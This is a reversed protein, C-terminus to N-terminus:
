AISLHQESPPEELIRALAEVVKEKEKYARESILSLLLNTLSLYPEIAKSVVYDIFEHRLVKNADPITTSHIYITKGVVSGDKDSHAKPVWEVNLDDYVNTLKKLRELEKELLTKGM